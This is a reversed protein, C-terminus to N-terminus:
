FYFGLREELSDLGKTLIIRSYTETISINKLAQLASNMYCTNRISQLGVLGRPRESDRSEDIILNYIIVGITIFYKGATDFLIVFYLTNCCFRVENIVDAKKDPFDVNIVAGASGVVDSRRSSERQKPPCDRRSVTWVRPHSGVCRHVCGHVDVPQAPDDPINVLLGYGVM